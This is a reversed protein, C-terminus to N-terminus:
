RTEELPRRRPNPGEARPSPQPEKALRTLGALPDNLDVCAAFADRDLHEAKAALDRAAKMDGNALAVAARYALRRAEAEPRPDHGRTEWADIIKDAEGPREKALLLNASTMYYEEYGPDLDSAAALAALAEDTQGLEARAEALEAWAADDWPTLKLLLSLDDATGAHDTDLRKLDARCRLLRAVRELRRKRLSALMIAASAATALAGAVLWTRREEPTSFLGGWLLILGVAFLVTPIIRPWGGPPGPIPRADPRLPLIPALLRDLREREEKRYEPDNAARALNRFERDVTVSVYRIVLAAVVALFALLAVIHYMAM